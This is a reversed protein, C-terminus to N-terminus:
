LTEYFKRERAALRPIAHGFGWEKFHDSDLHAQYAGEDTYQEYLFFVAPNEPDRQAQYILIGPEKPSEAMLHRIADLVADEEGERATWTACVVYAM